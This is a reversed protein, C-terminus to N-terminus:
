ILNIRLPFPTTEFHRIKESDKVEYRLFIVTVTMAKIWLLRTPPTQRGRECWRVHREAYPPETRPRVSKLAEVKGCDVVEKM